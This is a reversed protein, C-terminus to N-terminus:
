KSAQPSRFLHPVISSDSGSVLEPHCTTILSRIEQSLNSQQLVELYWSVVMQRKQKVEEFDKLYENLVAAQLEPLRSHGSIVESFYRKNEGYKTLKRIYAARESNKVLVAGGDGLTGLNKTPYLSFCSIDGFTGVAQGNVTTGFAQACDEVLTIQSQKTRRIPPSAIVLLDDSVNGYLHVLIVAKTKNTMRKEIEKKDVQGMENCDM